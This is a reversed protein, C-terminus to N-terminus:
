GEFSSLIVTANTGGFGFSNSMAYRIRRERAKLPVFDLKAEPDPDELNITPPILHTGISKICVGAEVAGAAGLLHGMMSKSSSVWLKKDLAHSGFVDIIAKAEELDGAPTSTGHANIYDIQEPALKADKLALRMARAGGAGNPAPKTIHHADSTAGYGVIEALIKAGRKRARTLTELILTGAGEGCVFGDRGRDWPRSAREPEENRRSLAFMASFGGIGIPTITAEAGGAIMVEADGRQMWRVAEGIAHASSSCASTHALSPGRMGFAISVQGAAMNAILSPIFYPSVKGPGKQTLTLTCRELNELGGLGVGIFVGAREREDETLNLDAQELAMKTAAMAFPIFRSVEKLKKREMFAAPDFNKVEAAIRTAYEPGAPFLTIPGVGSGGNILSEWTPETGVGNPTVLGLGTVVVREMHM